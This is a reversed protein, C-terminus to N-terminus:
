EGVQAVLDLETSSPIDGPAQKRSGKWWGGSHGLNYLLHSAIKASKMKVKVRKCIKVSTKSDTSFGQALTTCDAEKQKDKERKRPLQSRM